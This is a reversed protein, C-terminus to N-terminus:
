TTGLLGRLRQVLAPSAGPTRARRRALAALFALEFRYQPYCRQCAALHEALAHMREPTLEGDLFDWLQEVVERCSVM